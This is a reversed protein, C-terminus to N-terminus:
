EHDRERPTASNAARVLRLLRGFQLESAEIALGAALLPAHRRIADITQNIGHIDIRALAQELEARLIDPLAALGATDMQPRTDAPSNKEAYTFCVGLHQSLATYIDDSDYPKRIFGDCGAALIEQRAEDFAHATVAVIKTTGKTDLAKIQRTAELGDLVPMRIDMWILDPQWSKFVAIAEEGNAAERLEFGFPALLKKLLLRNDPQDEVILLRYRKEEAALGIVRGRESVPPPSVDTPVTVPITVWFLSGAGLAAEVGIEGGMVEVFQKCIALGLGTGSESTPQEGLQVFPTFIRKQDKEPIGPGSDAVEFRLRLRAGSEGSATLARLIVKGSATYKIANGTLNLLVQRLKGTDAVIQRPLDPALELTFELGKELARFRMFSLIEEGLQHLDFSSEELAVRGAEIKSIDLVNDILHLLHAGSRSIIKLNTQQEPTAGLGNQMLQAFGLVANIPTRLEHSMNALFVSKARNAKEALEKAASLEDTRQRVTEELHDRHSSLDRMQERITESMQVLTSQFPQFELYPLEPIPESYVGAAYPAVIKALSYLPKKLYLHVFYYTLIVFITSIIVMITAFIVLLRRGAEKVTRKSLAVEVEGLVEGQYDIRGSRKIVEVDSTREDPLLIRGSAEKIVLGVVLENQRFTSSITEITKYDYTWLPIRLAGVLHDRYVDAKKMLDAEQAQIANMYIVGITIASILVAAATLGTALRASISFPKAKGKGALSPTTDTRGMIDPAGRM